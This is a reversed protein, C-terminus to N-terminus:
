LSRYESMQLLVTYPTTHNPRDCSIENLPLTLFMSSISFEDAWFCSWGTESDTLFAETSFVGGLAVLETRRPISAGKERRCLREQEFLEESAIEVKVNGELGSLLALDSPELNM